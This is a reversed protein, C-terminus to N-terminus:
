RILLRDADGKVLARGGPARMFKAVAGQVGIAFTTAPDHGAQLLREVMAPGALPLLRCTLTRPAMRDPLM